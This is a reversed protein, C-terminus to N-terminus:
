YIFLIVWSMFDVFVYTKKLALNSITHVYEYCQFGNNSAVMEVFYPLRSM